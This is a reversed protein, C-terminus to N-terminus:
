NTGEATLPWYEITRYVTKGESKITLNIKEIMRERLGSCAVMQVNKSKAIAYFRNFIRKLKPDMAGDLYPMYITKITMKELLTALGEFLFIGPKTLILYDITMSGTKKILEPVLTYSVFSYSGMKRGIAGKDILVIKDNKHMCELASQQNLITFPKQESPNVSLLTCTAIFLLSLSYLRRKPLQLYPHFLVACTLIPIAIIVFWHPQKFAIMCGSVDYGVVQKWWYTIWELLQILLGNPM